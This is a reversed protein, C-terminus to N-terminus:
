FIRTREFLEDNDMVNRIYSLAFIPEIGSSVVSIISKTGYPCNHHSYREEPRIGAKPFRKGTLRFFAAPRRLPAARSRAKKM